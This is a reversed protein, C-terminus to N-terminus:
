SPKWNVIISIPVAPEEIVRELLFRQGDPAVIYSHLAVGHLPGVGAPFLPVPAGPRVSRGDPAVSIPVSMLRGDLAIAAGVPEHNGVALPFGPRAHARTVCEIRMPDAYVIEDVLVMAGAHPLMREIPVAPIM